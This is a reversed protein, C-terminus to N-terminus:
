SIAHASRLTNSGAQNKIRRRQEEIQDKWYATFLKSYDYTAACAKTKWRTLNARTIQDWDQLIIVPLDKYLPDLPSTKVLVICGM